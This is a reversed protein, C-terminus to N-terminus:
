PMTSPLLRPDGYKEITTEDRYAPVNLLATAHEDAIVSAPLLEAREAPVGRRRSFILALLKGGLITPDRRDVVPGDTM